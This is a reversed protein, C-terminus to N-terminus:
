RGSMDVPDKRAIRTIPYTQRIHRPSGHRRPENTSTPPSHQNSTKTAPQEPDSGDGAGVLRCGPVAAVLVGVLGLASGVSMAAAAAMAATFFHLSANLALM